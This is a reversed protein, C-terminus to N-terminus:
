GWGGRPPHPSGHHGRPAQTPVRLQTPVRDTGSFGWVDWPAGLPPPPPHVASLITGLSKPTWIAPPWCTGPSPAASPPAPHVDATCTPLQSHGGVGSQPDRCLGSPCLFTRGRACGWPQWLDTGMGHVRDTGDRPHQPWCCGPAVLAGGKNGQTPPTLGQLTRHSPVSPLCHCITLASLLIFALRCPRPPPSRTCSCPPVHAHHSRARRPPFTALAGRCCRQVLPATLHPSTCRPSTCCPATCHSPLQAM